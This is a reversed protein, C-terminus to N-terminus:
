QATLRQNLQGVWTCTAGDKVYGTIIFKNDFSYLMFFCLKKLFQKRAIVHHTLEPIINQTLM